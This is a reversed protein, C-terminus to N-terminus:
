SLEEGQVDIVDVHSIALDYAETACAGLCLAIACPIAKKM